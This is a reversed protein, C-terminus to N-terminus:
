EYGELYRPLSHVVASQDVSLLTKQRMRIANRPIQHVHQSLIRFWLLSIVKLGCIM